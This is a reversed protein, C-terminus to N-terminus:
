RARKTTGISMKEYECPIRYVGATSLPPREGKMSWLARSIKKTSRYIPGLNAKELIKGTKGPIKQISTKWLQFHFM